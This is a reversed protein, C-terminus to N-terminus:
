RSEPELKLSLNEIETEANEDELSSYSYLMIGDAEYDSSIDYEDALISDSELWTEEDADSGAKYGALGIYLKLDNHFSLSKWEKLSNEFTLAPNELSFYIQPCIYDIYGRQACWSTVDANLGANNGLNGQPSIGFEPKKDTSANEASHVARYVECILLNVNATRWEDLSMISGSSHGSKYSEYQASDESDIDQPYFYDDFQIGDIDYNEALERVGDVILKRAKENSPDLIVTSETEICIKSDTIYPNTECLESPTDNLLIRYPNIWAHIKLGEKNCIECMIKLPDYGPDKGQKGTLIHSFPFIDSKYLADCFPRVQVILTNFGRSKCNKAIAEFKGRFARESQDDEYQMSLEMYTVWVGKMQENEESNKLNSEKISNNNFAETRAPIQASNDQRLKATMGPALVSILLFAAAIVPLIRKLM